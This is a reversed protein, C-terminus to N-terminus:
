FLDISAQVIGDFRREPSLLKEGKGLIIQKIEERKIRPKILEPSRMFERTKLGGIAFAKDNKTNYTFTDIIHKHNMKGNEAFDNLMMALWVVTREPRTVSGNTPNVQNFFLRTVAFNSWCFIDLCNEALTASKGKTKWIPQIMLPVELEPNEKMLKDMAKVLSPIVPEVEEAVNWNIKTAFIKSLYKGFLKPTGKAVFSLALYVITDPRVVIESGYDEEGFSSTQDDPLATLKIELPSFQERKADSLSEVVLDVRPLHGTVFNKYPLYTEEFAYFTKESLPDTKYLDTVKIKDHVVTFDKGLKIYVPDISKSHMYNLLAVPFANNFQNKGWSFESALDRNSNKIGFLGPKIPSDGNDM